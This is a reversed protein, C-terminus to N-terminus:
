KNSLFYMKFKYIEAKRFMGCYKKKQLQFYLM